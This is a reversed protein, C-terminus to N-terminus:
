KRAIKLNIQNAEWIVQEVAQDIRTGMGMLLLGDMVKVRCKGRISLKIISDNCIAKKGGLTEALHSPIIILDIKSLAMVETSLPKYGEVLTGVNKLGSLQMLLDPMTNKGAVMPGRQGLGLLTLTNIQNIPYNKTKQHTRLQNSVREILENAENLKSFYQGVNRILLRWSELTYRDQEFLQVPVGVAELQKIVGAPGVGKAAVIKTPNLSLVGEASLSRFYGIQPLKLAELPYLSSTDVAVVKDGLGLAYVIETVSGGASIIRENSDAGVASAKFVGLLVLGM